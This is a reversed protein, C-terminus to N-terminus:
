ASTKMSYWTASSSTRSSPTTLFAERVMLWPPPTRAWAPTRVPYAYVSSRSM